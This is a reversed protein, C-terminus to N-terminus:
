RVRLVRATVPAEGGTMRAFYMGTAVRRGADDRGDWGVAGGSGVAGLDRVRRGGVSVIELRSGAPPLAAAGDPAVWRIVQGGVAPNPAVALRGASAAAGPRDPVPTGGGLAAHAAMGRIIGWGYDNDPTDAQTATARLADAVEVPTAAPYAELLLAGVGAVLPTSLSTGTGRSYATGTVDWPAAFLTGTGMACVDPKTRGDFTPGHGSYSAIVGLSDVAGVAVVSDGDGPATVFHWESAGENGVGTSVLIGNAVALDAAITIVATNGDMDEYTYWDKYALSSTIIDAGLSDAWQAAAAWNDEEAPTESLLTETKALAVSAGYAPGILSGPANGALISLVLTGHYEQNSPDDGENSTNGDGQVFDWEAVVDLGTFAEHVTTRFGTDLVAVLVGAGSLGADHLQDVQIPLIQSSCDGYDLGGRGGPWGGGTEVPRVDRVPSHTRRAVPRVAQVFPLVEIAALEDASADVSVANLWRVEHRIRAGTAAVAGVYPRHLVVDLRDVPEARVKARRALARPTLRDRAARLARAEEAPSTLGKDHFYVWHPATGDDAAAPLPAPLCALLALVPLLSRL